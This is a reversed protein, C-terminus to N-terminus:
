NSSFVVTVEDIVNIEEKEEKKKIQNFCFDFSMVFLYMFEHYIELTNFLLQIVAITSLNNQKRNLIYVCVCKCDVFCGLRITLLQCVLVYFFIENKIKILKRKSDEKM